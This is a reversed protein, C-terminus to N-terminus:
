EEGQFREMKNYGLPGLLADGEENSLSIRLHIAFGSVWSEMLHGSLSRERSSWELGGLDVQLFHRLEGSFLPILQGWTPAMHLAQVDEQIEQVRFSQLINQPTGESIPILVPPGQERRGPVPHM